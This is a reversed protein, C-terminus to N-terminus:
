VLISTFLVSVLDVPMGEIIGNNPVIVIFTKNTNRYIASTIEVIM